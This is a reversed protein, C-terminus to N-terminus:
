HSQLESTHEESRKRLASRNFIRGTTIEIQNYLEPDSFVKNGKIRIDGIKYQDGESISITLFIKKKDPSLRIKPESVAVYIYGKSQYLERIRALDQRIQEKRYIGSGTLFSFLWREKTKMVKKIEKVSLSKNGEITIKKITVKPGEEVQFTLAAADEPMERIIPVVRVLWYGESQYFSIIRQVNDTILSLNAIAGSTITIKEKLDKTEFEKNGQFDLSVITPKETFVYILKVGGEFPEIEVRIDDFYGIRYLRKIDDQVSNKSFPLGAESKIKSSIVSSSIKRNGEIEIVKILPAAEASNAPINLLFLSMYFFM